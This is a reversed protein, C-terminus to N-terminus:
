SDIIYQFKGPRGPREHISQRAMPILLLAVVLSLILTTIISVGIHEGILKLIFDDSFLFPLFVTDYDSHRCIVAKAVM